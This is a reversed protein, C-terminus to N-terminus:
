LKEPLFTIKKKKFHTDKLVSFGPAAMHLRTDGPAVAPNSVGGTFIQLLSLQKESLLFTTLFSM